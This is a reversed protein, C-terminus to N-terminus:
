APRSLVAYPASAGDELNMARVLGAFRPLGRLSDLFEYSKIPVMMPDRENIAREMWVFAEDIEGLGLHIWAYSTGPVYAQAAIGHLRNLLVRAESFNGSQALALGLWGLVMPSGGSLEDARRLAAIAEGYKSQMCLAQGLALFGMMNTPDLEIVRGIEKVSREYRRGLWCMVALWVRVMISLPDYELIAELEAIAEDLRGHPMLGSLARRFRAIGSLPNLQLAQTMERDVEAWNYDLEKRFAGLLAHTEALSDDIELARHAASLGASFAERPPVFGYFGAWWCLEALADFALAFKPDRTIAQEFCERAHMFGAPNEKSMHYRGQLYLTYAADDETPRKPAYETVALNARKKEAIAPIHEALGQVISAQVDFIEHLLGDYRRAYLHSQDAARILQVNMAVEDNYCRVSGEVIYDVGLERAIRAADKHSGKYHMSTTRAIVALENPAVGALATIIGDTMADSFYDETSNGTLNIFPLVVLRARVDPSAALPASLEGIFRYGRKPLTEIFRPREASDNLVERLRGIATNLNNDFDVFVDDSWLRRKLEERTVLEGPRELLAALVEFSKERVSLKMGRKYLQGSTLDVEYCDFRVTTAMTRSRGDAGV